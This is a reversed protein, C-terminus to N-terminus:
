DGGIPETALRDVVTRGGQMVCRLRDQDELVAVEALPNGDVVLLDAYKGAEITGVDADLGICAAASATSMAIAQMPSLGVEVLLRLERANRAHGYAAADTGMAMRVGLADAREITRRSHEMIGEARRRHNPNGLRTHDEIVSLTPVLFTGRDAMERLVDDDQHLFSGHDVSDTGARVAARAGPGGYAHCLVRKGWLHAEDVLADIEADTFQREVASRWTGAVGGTTAIKIADAGAAVMERVGRRCDEVGNRVGDPV